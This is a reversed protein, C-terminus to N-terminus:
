NGEKMKKFEGFTIVKGIPENVVQITGPILSMTMDFVQKQEDNLAVPYAIGDKIFTLIFNSGTVEM